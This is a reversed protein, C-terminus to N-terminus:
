ASIAASRSILRGYLGRGAMGTVFVGSLLFAVALTFEPEVFHFSRVGGTGIVLLALAFGALVLTWTTNIFRSVRTAKM